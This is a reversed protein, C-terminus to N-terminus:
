GKVEIYENTLINLYNGDELTVNVDKHYDFNFVGYYEEKDNYFKLTAADDNLYFAEFVGDNFM